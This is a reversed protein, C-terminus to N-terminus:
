LLILEIVHELPFVVNLELTLPEGDLEPYHCIETGNQMSTLDFAKLYHDRFKDIPLPPIDDQFNMAKMTM